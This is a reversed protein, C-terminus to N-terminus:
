QVRFTAWNSESGENEASGIVDIRWRYTGTPLPTQLGYSELKALSWEQHPSYDAILTILKTFINVYTGQGIQREMRFVFTSPVYNEDFNWVFVGNFIDNNIPLELDPWPLLTYGAKQSNPGQQGIADRARVYYFYTRNVNISTDIYTTDLREFEKQVEAIKNFTGSSDGAKRYIEYAEIDDEQLPHWEIFIGNKIVQNNAGVIAIADIGHEVPADEPTKVVLQVKGPPLDQNEVGSQCALLVVLILLFSINLYVRKM